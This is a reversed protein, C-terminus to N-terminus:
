VQEASCFHRRRRWDTDISRYLLEPPAYTRDGAFECDDRPSITGQISACGLDAVKSVNSTYLLCGRTDIIVRASPWVYRDVIGAVYDLDVLSRAFIIEMVPTAAHVITTSSDVPRRSSCIPAIPCSSYRIGGNGHAVVSVHQLRM